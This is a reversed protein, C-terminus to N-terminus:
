HGGDSAGYDVMNGLLKELPNFWMRFLTGLKTFRNIYHPYYYQGRDCIFRIFCETFNNCNNRFPDYQDGRWFQGFYDTINNIEELDFYTKGVEVIEKLTLGASNGKYVVVTGPSDMEHGGYSLELNYIGVSTHYFGLGLLEVAKNLSTVHYM